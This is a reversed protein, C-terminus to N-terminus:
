RNRPTEDPFIKTVMDGDETLYGHLMGPSSHPADFTGDPGLAIVGGDGGLKPLRKILVEYAASAVDKGGFEVLNALTSTAAGRIFTEGHGTASAAVVGNKAYTGSGILPSDGVRGAMKNTTGGTSTAAALNDDEDRAVAGVTGKTSSGPAGVDEGDDKGQQKREKAKARQLEEWRQKTSYYDQTVTKLGQAAAFDDAGEGQLLVHPTEDMVKRAASVPNKVNRVGAVAGAKMDSGRMVSADLEHDANETFVAGKGANFLPNDELERVAAETADLSSGGDDLVRRGARLADSLGDRYARAEKNSTTKRDLATGAGGHVALVVRHADPKGKGAPSSGDAAAAGHGGPLAALAAVSLAALAALAPLLLRRPRTRM